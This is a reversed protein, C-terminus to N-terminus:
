RAAFTCEGERLPSSGDKDLANVGTRASADRLLQALADTSPNSERCLRLIHLDQSSPVRSLSDDSATRTTDLPPPTPLSSDSM